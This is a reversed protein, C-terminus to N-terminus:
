VCKGNVPYFLLRHLIRDLPVATNTTDDSMERGLAHEPSM